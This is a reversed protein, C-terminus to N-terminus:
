LLFKLFNTHVLTELTPGKDSPFMLMEHKERVFRRDTDSTCWSKRNRNIKGCKLALRLICPQSLLCFNVLYSQCEISFYSSRLM